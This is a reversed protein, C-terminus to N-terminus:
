KLRGLIKWITPALWRRGMRTLIRSGNLHDAIREYSAGGKRLRQMVAVIETEGPLDGYRKRGAGTGHDRRSTSRFKM